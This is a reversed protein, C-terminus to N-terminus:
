KVLDYEICSTKGYPRNVEEFSFCSDDVFVGVNNPRDRRQQFPLFDSPRIKSFVIFHAVDHEQCALGVYGAGLQLVNNQCDFQFRFVLNLLFEELYAIKSCCITAV